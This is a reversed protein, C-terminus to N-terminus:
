RGYKNLNKKSVFIMIGGVICAAAIMLIQVTYQPSVTQKVNSDSIGLVEQNIVTVDIKKNVGEACDLINTFKSDNKYIKSSTQEGSCVISIATTGEKLPRFTITSFIGTLPNTNKLNDKVASISLRGQNKVNVDFKSFDAPSKVMYKGANDMEPQIFAPDYTIQIDIGSVSDTASEAYVNVNFPLNRKITIAAPLLELSAAFISYPISLFIGCIIISLFLKKM